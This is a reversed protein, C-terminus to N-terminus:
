QKTIDQFIIGLGNPQDKDDSLIFTSYGIKKHEKLDATSFSRKETKGEKLAETIKKFLTPKLPLVEYFYKGTVERPLELIERARDNIVFIRGENDLGIFGSTMSHLIRMEEIKLELTKIQSIDLQNFLTILNAACETLYKDRLNFTGIKKNIFGLVGLSEGKYKLPVFMFSHTSPAVTPSYADELKIDLLKNNLIVPEKIQFAWRALNKEMELGNKINAFSGTDGAFAVRLELDGIEPNKFLVLTTEVPIIKDLKLVLKKLFSAEEVSGSLIDGIAEHLLLLEKHEDAWLSEVEDQKM